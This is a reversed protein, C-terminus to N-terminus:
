KKGALALMAAAQERLLRNTEDKEVQTRHEAIVKAEDGHKNEMHRRVHFASALHASMCEVGALGAEDWMERDPHGPHLLCMFEGLRYEKAPEISFAPRGDTLKKRLTKSLMNVLVERPEGTETHYIIARDDATSTMRAPEAMAGDIDQDGSLFISFGPEGKREQIEAVKADIVAERVAQNM